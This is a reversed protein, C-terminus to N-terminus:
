ASPPERHLMGSCWQTRGYDVMRWFRHLGTWMCSTTSRPNTPFPCVLCDEAPNEELDDLDDTEEFVDLTEEAGPEAPADVPPDPLHAAAERADLKGTVLDATLRTRYERM